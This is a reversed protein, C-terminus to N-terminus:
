ADPDDAAPNRQSVPGPRISKGELRYTKRKLRPVYGEPCLRAADPEPQGGPPPTPQDSTDAPVPVCEYRTDVPSPIVGDDNM